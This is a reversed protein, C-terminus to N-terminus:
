RDAARFHAVLAQGLALGGDNAPLRLQTLATFEHAQLRDLVAGLLLTNQFVGGSLAVTNLGSLERAAVCADCVVAAIAHHFRASIVGPAVGELVDQVVQRLLPRPDIEFQVESIDSQLGAPTAAIPGATTAPRIMGAVDYAPENGDQALTEFEMAAQAEYTVTQRVGALAAVADFLRGMSTTPMTNLGTELQRQLIRWEEPPCAAVPPLAEDWAIGAAWLHALAIRYPRRIATDGGPLPVPRLAGVRRFSRYGAM